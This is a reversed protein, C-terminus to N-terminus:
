AQFSPIALTRGQQPPPEDLAPRPPPAQEGRAVAEEPPASATPDSADPARADRRARAGRSRAQDIALNRVLQLFWGRPHGRAPDYQDARGWLRLFAEQVVDGGGGGEGRMGVGLGEAGWGRGDGVGA